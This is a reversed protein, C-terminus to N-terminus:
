ETLGGETSKLCFFLLLCGAGKNHTRKPKVNPTNQTHTHTTHLTAKKWLVGVHVQIVVIRLLMKLLVDGTAILVASSNSCSM